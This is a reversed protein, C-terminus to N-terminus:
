HILFHTKLINNSIQRLIHPFMKSPVKDIFEKNEMFEKNEIFEKNISFIEVECIVNMENFFKHNSIWQLSISIEINIIFILM